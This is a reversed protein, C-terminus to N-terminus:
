RQFLFVLSLSFLALFHLLCLVLLYLRFITHQTAYSHKGKRLAIPLPDSGPLSVLDVFPLSSQPSATASLRHQRMYVQLPALSCPPLLVLPSPSASEFLPPVPLLISMVDPELTSDVLSTASPFYFVFEVFTVDANTFYRQLIPSYCCYGKQTTSYGLFVCKPARPDLKDVLSIFMAFM